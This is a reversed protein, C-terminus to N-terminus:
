DRATEGGRDLLSLPFGLDRLKGFGPTRAAWTPFLVRALDLHVRTSLSTLERQRRSKRTTM